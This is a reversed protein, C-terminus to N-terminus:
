LNMYNFTFHEQAQNPSSSKDIIKLRMYHILYKDTNCTVKINLKMESDHVKFDYKAFVNM